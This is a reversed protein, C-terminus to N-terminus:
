KTHFTCNEVCSAKSTNILKICLSLSLSFIHCILEYKVMITFVSYFEYKVMITFKSYFYRQLLNVFVHCGGISNVQELFSALVQKQSVTRIIMHLIDEICAMDLSTEFFAVLARVDSVLIHERCM